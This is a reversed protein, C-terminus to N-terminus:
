KKQLQEKQFVFFIYFIIFLLTIILVILTYKYNINSETKVKFNKFSVMKFDDKFISSQLLSQHLKELEFKSDGINVIQRKLDFILANIELQKELYENPIIGQYLYKELNNKKIKEEEEKKEETIIKLQQSNIDILKHLDIIAANANEKFFNKSNLFNNLLVKRVYKESNQNTELIFNKWKGKDKVGRAELLILNSNRKQHQITFYMSTNLDKNDDQNFINEFKISDLNKMYSLYIKFLQKSEIVQFKREEINPISTNLKNRENFLLVDNNYNEFSSIGTILPLFQFSLKFNKEDNAIQYALFSIPILLSIIIFVKKKLMVKLIDFIDIEPHSSTNIM